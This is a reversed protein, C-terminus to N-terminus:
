VLALIHPIAKALSYKTTFQRMRDIESVKALLGAERLRYLQTEMWRQDWLLWKSMPGDFLREFSYMGPEPFELHLVYAFSALSGERLSVNLRSRDASGVAFIKYTNVIAAGVAKASKSNPFQAQVFDRIRARSVGGEALAAFVVEEAVMAVIKEARCTLYFLAEGLAPTEDTEAAFRPLDDNYIGGPFFRNILYAAYRQRTAKSNFRLNEILYGRLEDIGHYKGAQPLHKLAHDALDKDYIRLAPELFRPKPLIAEKRDPAAAPAAVPEDFLPRENLRTLTSQGLRGEIRSTLRNVSQAIDKKLKAQDAAPAKEVITWLSRMVTVVSDFTPAGNVSTSQRRVPNAGESPKKRM